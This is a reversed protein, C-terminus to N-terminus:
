IIRGLSEAAAGAGMERSPKTGVLWGGIGLAPGVTLAAPPAFGDDRFGCCCCCCRYIVAITENERANQMRRSRVDVYLKTEPMTLLMIERTIGRDNQKRNSQSRCVLQFLRFQREKCLSRRLADFLPARESQKDSM